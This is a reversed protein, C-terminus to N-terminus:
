GLAAVQTIMDWGDTGQLPLVAAAWHSVNPSFSVILFRADGLLL